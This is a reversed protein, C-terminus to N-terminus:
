NNLIESIKEKQIQLNESQCWGDWDQVVFPKLLGEFTKLNCLEECGRISLAHGNYITRVFAEGFSDQYLEFLIQSSFIPNSHTFSRNNKM